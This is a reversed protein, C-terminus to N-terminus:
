ADPAGPGLKTSYMAVLDDLQKTTIETAREDYPCVTVTEVDGSRSRSRAQATPDFPIVAYKKM